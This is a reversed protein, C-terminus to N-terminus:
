ADYPVNPMASPNIAHTSSTAILLTYGDPKARAAEASGITGAAGGRNDIILQQGLFPTIKAGTAPERQRDPRRAPVARDAPDPQDPYGEQAQM